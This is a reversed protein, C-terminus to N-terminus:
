QQVSVIELRKFTNSKKMKISQAHTHTHVLVGLSQQGIENHLACHCSIFLYFHNLQTSIEDAAVVTESSLQNEM